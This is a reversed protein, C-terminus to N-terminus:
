PGDALGVEELARSSREAALLRAYPGSGAALDSSHGREVTRGGELVVVEDFAELGLLRHTVLLTARGRGAELISALVDRETVTDLHATPEDLLLLPAPRLLARALALRQREGGSLGRGQEGIWTDLGDALSSVFTALRAARLSELIEDDTAGPGGIRLNERLTGTFLQARQAAFAVRSRVEDSHRAHVDVGEFLVTGPPVDWFRLVLHALTSKGSGSAGVVAVRRGLPLTLCLGDLAPRAEGPYTFRLDRVELVPAGHVPRVRSRAADAPEAVSPPADAIEILRAAAAHAAGLSQWAAPLASLAEFAALTLLTVVALRTGELSGSRIAPIALALVVLATLDAGLGTLAGGLASARALRSQEAAAKRSLADVAAAHREEAGCALLEAVGQVGDVLAAGLAARDAVLRRGPRLGLWAALAPLAAGSAVFGAVAATAVSAGFPLLVLGLVLSVAVAALTPALLRAYLSELTAVDEVARGLLDGARHDLLRAPAAPVLARFVSVRLRALLRLSVEHSFLREVYRFAARGIGFARVSVIAVQLVAISPHLAAKSLLWAASGMLGMAAGVTLTQLVAALAVKGGEPAVLGLLRRWVGSV